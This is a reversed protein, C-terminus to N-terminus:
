PASSTRAARRRERMRAQDARKCTRCFRGKGRNTIGTNEPTFEHGRKCSMRAGHGGARINDALPMPDLHSPRVCRRHPCDVGSRCEDAVATHCLHDLTMGDPIPGIELEYAFRHAQVMRDRGDRTVSFNGYGNKKGGTWVWCEGSRDVYSWFREADTQRWRSDVFRPDGWKRWRQWHKRCMRRGVAPAGCEDIECYTRPRTV